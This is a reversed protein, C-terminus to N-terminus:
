EKVARVVWLPDRSNMGMWGMIGQLGQSAQQQEGDNVKGSSLEVIEIQQWGAFQLFDCVMLLREEEKLRLWRSIAKTPFCRNSITLHIAGGTKTVERLSKLVEVPQTLYDTSVVNTSADLKESEDPGIAKADNLAEAVDPNANLDALLRGSNLVKNAGLEAKNMGLGIVKLDGSEAADEVSKPYHSVWSSCFDLLKGQRPLITDYYERLTGIAADDIHTVFRPARYFSSDPSSDSRTFDSPNYPWNVHRTEFRKVPWQKASSTM